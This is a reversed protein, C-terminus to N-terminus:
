SPHASVPPCKKQVRFDSQRLGESKEPVRLTRSFATSAVLGFKKPLSVVRRRELVRCDILIKQSVRSDM